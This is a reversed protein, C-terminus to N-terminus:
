AVCKFSLFFGYPFSSKNFYFELQVGECQCVQIQLVVECKGCHRKMHSWGKPLYTLTGNWCGRMGCEGSDIPLQVFM